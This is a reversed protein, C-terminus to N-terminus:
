LNNVNYNSEIKKTDPNITKYFSKMGLCSTYNVRITEIASIDRPNIYYGPKLEQFILIADGLEQFEQVSVRSTRLYKKKEYYSVTIELKVM